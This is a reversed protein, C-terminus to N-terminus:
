PYYVDIVIRVPNTLEAIKYESPKVLGISFGLLADDFTPYQGIRTVAPNEEPVFPLEGYIPADYAYLDSILLDIRAEGWSPDDGTPFPVAVNDVVKMEYYPITDRDEVMEVVIRLFDDHLGYRM